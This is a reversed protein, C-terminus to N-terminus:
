PRMAAERSRVDLDPATGTAPRPPEQTLVAWYLAGQLTLSECIEAFSVPAVALWWLILTVVAGGVPLWRVDLRRALVAVFISVGPLVMLFILHDLLRLVCSQALAVHGSGSPPAISLTSFLSYSLPLVIYLAALLAGQLM